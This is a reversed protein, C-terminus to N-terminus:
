KKAAYCEKKLELAIEIERSPTKQGKESRYFALFYDKYALIKRESKMCCLYHKFNVYGVVKVFIKGLM